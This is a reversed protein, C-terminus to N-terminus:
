STKPVACSTLRENKMSVLFYFVPVCFQAGAFTKLTLQESAFLMPHSPNRRKKLAERELRYKKITCM